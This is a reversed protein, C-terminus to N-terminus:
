TGTPKDKAAAEAEAAANDEECGSEVDRDFAAQHEALQEDTLKRRGPMQRLKEAM